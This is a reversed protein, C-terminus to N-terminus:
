PQRTAAWLFGALPEGIEPARCADVTVQRAQLARHDIPQKGEQGILTRGRLGPERRESPKKRGVIEIREVDIRELLQDFTEDVKLGDAGALIQLEEDRGGVDM